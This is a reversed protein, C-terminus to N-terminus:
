WWRHALWFQHAKAWSGYRQNAYSNAWKLQCVADGRGCGTKSYPLAQPLGEAGSSPNRALPNWGSEKQIIHDVYSWDSEPIGSARLWGLKSGSVSVAKVPERRQEPLLEVTQKEQINTEIQEYKEVAISDTIVPPRILWPLILM